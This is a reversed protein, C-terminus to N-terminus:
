DHENGLQARTVDDGLLAALEGRWGCVAPALTKAGTREILAAAADLAAEAANRAAAGDRRLLARALVGRPELPYFFQNVVRQPGRFLGADGAEGSATM